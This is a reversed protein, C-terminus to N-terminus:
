YLKTKDLPFIRALLRGQIKDSEVPGFARSDYSGGPARNDGMVFVQHDPITLNIASDVYAPELNTLGLTQNPDFGEPHESNRITVVGDTSISIREGPLGIVRKILQENHGSRDILSSDLVVIQGRQPIYHKGGALALTREVKDIVLRDNNHLTPVMSTGDVYYSQFVFQNILTAAIIVGGIFAVVSLFAKANGLGFRKREPKPAPTTPPTPTTSPQESPTTPAPQHQTPEMPVIIGRQPPSQSLACLKHKRLIIESKTKVM